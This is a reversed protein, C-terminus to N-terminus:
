QLQFDSAKFHPKNAMKEFLLRDSLNNSPTIGFFDKRNIHRTEYINWVQELSHVDNRVLFPLAQLPLVIYADALIHIHAISLERTTPDIFVFGYSYPNIILIDGEKLIRLLEALNQAFEDPIYKIDANSEEVDMRRVRNTLYDSFQRLTMPNGNHFRAHLNLAHVGKADHYGILYTVEPIEAERDYKGTLSRFHLPLYYFRNPTHESLKFNSVRSREFLNRRTIHSRLQQDEIYPRYKEKILQRQRQYEADFIALENALSQELQGEDTPAEQYVAQTPQEM